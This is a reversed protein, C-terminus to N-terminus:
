LPIRIHLNRDRLFDIEKRIEETLQVRYLGNIRFCCPCKYTYTDFGAYPPDPPNITLDMAEIELEAECKKCTVRMVSKLVKGEKIVKM